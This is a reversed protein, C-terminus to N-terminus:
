LPGLAKLQWRRSTQCELKNNGSLESQDPVSMRQGHFFWASSSMARLSIWMATSHDRHIEFVFPSQGRLAFNGAMVLWFADGAMRAQLTRQSEFPSAPAGFPM